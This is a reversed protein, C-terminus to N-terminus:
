AVLAESSGYRQRLSEWAALKDSRLTEDDYLEDFYCSLVSDAPGLFRVILSEQGEFHPFPNPERAFEVATIQDVRVDMVSRFDENGFDAHWWRRDGPGLFLPRAFGALHTTHWGVGFVFVLRGSECLDSILREVESTAGQRVAQNEM